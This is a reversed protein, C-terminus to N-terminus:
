LATPAPPDDYPEVHEPAPEEQGPVADPAEGGPVAAAADQRSESDQPDAPPTTGSPAAPAVPSQPPVPAGPYVPPMAGYPTSSQTGYPPNQPSAPPTVGYPPYPASPNQPPVPAGPYVPPMTGYPSPGQPRGTPGQPNAPPVTGYPPYPASPGQPNVPSTAGYPSAPGGQAPRYMVYATDQGQPPQVGYPMQAGPYLNLEMPDILGNQVARDRLFIYLEAKTADYYPNVFLHGLGLCLAGLLYWGIFSLDLTFISGKEGNTLLTSIQRARAGKLQPNDALLYKVFCYQYTKIVYPILLFLSLFILLSMMYAGGITAFASILLVAVMIWLWMEVLLDTTCMAGVSTLYGNRFAGFLNEFRSDGFRNHVFYRCKGMNIPNSVFVRFAFGVGVALLGILVAVGVLAGAFTGFEGWDDYGHNYQYNGYYDYNPDYEHGFNYYPDDWPDTYRDYHHDYNGDVFGDIQDEVRTAVDDFENLNWPNLGGAFLRGALISAVLAVAFALWYRGRLATKANSKLIKRDWM